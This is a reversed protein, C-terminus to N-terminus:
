EGASELQLKTASPHSIWAAEVSAAVAALARELIDEAGAPTPGCATIYATIGVNISDPGTADPALYARRIVLDVRSCTLPFTYLRDCLIECDSAIDAPLTWQRDSRPLLDIYCGMGCAASEPPADLEDADFEEPALSPFFDCKATWVPSTAANLKCLVSALPPFQAAEPLRSADEPRLRLDVFGPWNVEIVPADGGVEFEWDAQM